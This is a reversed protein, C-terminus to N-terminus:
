VGENEKIEPLEVAGKDYLRKMRSAKLYKKEIVNTQIKPKLWSDKMPLM